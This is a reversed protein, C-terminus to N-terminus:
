SLSSLYYTILAVIIAAGPTRGIPQAQVITLTADERSWWTPAHTFAFRRYRGRERSLQTIGGNGEDFLLRHLETATAYDPMDVTAFRGREDRPQDPDGAM